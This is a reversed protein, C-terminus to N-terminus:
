RAAKWTAWCPAWPDAEDQIPPLSPPLPPPIGHAAGLILSYTPLPSTCLFVYLQEYKPKPRQEPGGVASGFGDGDLAGVNAGMAAGVPVVGAPGRAHGRM